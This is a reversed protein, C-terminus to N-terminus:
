VPLARALAASLFPLRAEKTRERVPRRVRRSSPEKGERGEKRGNLVEARM